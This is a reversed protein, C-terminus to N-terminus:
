SASSGPVPHPSLPARRVRVHVPTQNMLASTDPGTALLVVAFTNSLDPPCPELSGPIYHRRGCYAAPARLISGAGTLMIVLEASCFSYPGHVPTGDCTLPIAALTPNDM